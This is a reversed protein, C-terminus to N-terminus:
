RDDEEEEPDMVDRSGTMRDDHFVHSGGLVRIPVGTVLAMVVKRRGNRLDMGFTKRSIGLMRAADEQFLGELDVLRLAELEDFTLFVPRM